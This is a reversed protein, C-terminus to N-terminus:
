FKVRYGLSAKYMSLLLDMSFEIRTSITLGKLLLGFLWIYLFLAQTFVPSGHHATLMRTLEPPEQAKGLSERHIEM